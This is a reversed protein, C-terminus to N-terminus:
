KYYELAIAIVLYSTVTEQQVKKINPMSWALLTGALFVSTICITSKKNLLNYKIINVYATKTHTKLNEHRTAM